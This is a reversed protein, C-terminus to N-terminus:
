IGGGLMSSVVIAALALIGLGNPNAATTKTQKM